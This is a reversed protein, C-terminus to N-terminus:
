VRREESRAVVSGCRTLSVMRLRVWCRVLSTTTLVILLSTLWAGATSDRTFVSAISLEVLSNLLLIAYGFIQRWDAFRASLTLGIWFLGLRIASIVVGVSAVSWPTTVGSWTSRM